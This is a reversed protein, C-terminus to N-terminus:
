MEGYGTMIICHGRTCFSFNTSRGVIVVGRALEGWGDVPEVAGDLDAKRAEGRGEVLADDGGRLLHGGFERVVLVHVAPIDKANTRVV